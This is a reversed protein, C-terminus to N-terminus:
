RWMRRGVRLLHMGVADMRTEALGIIDATGVWIAAKGRQYFRMGELPDPRSAFRESWWERYAAGDIEEFPVRTM